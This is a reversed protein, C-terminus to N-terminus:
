AAVEEKPIQRSAIALGPGIREIAAEHLIDALDAFKECEAYYSDLVQHECEICIDRKGRDDRVYADERCSPCETPEIEGDVIANILHAYKVRKAAQAAHWELALHYGHTEHASPLEDGFMEEFQPAAVTATM